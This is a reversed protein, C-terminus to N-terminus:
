GKQGVAMEGQYPSDAGQCPSDAGWPSPKRAAVHPRGYPYFSGIGYHAYPGSVPRGPFPRSIAAGMTPFPGLASGQPGSFFDPAGTFVM